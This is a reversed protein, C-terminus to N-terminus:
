AQPEPLANPSDFLKDGFYRIALDVVKPFASYYDATLETRPQVFEWIFLLLSNKILKLDNVSLLLENDM